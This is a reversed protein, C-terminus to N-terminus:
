EPALVYELNGLVIDQTLRSDRLWGAIPRPLRRVTGILHLQEHVIRFGADAVQRRLTRLRVKELLDDHKDLGKQADKIFSNEHAPERLVGPFHRALWHFTNFAITRGFLLHLPIPILLHPLHAGPPSLYPATSLFFRGDPKIVRRCERLYLGADAVHEIVSHSLVLDFHRAPFPLALGSAQLFRVNALGKERALNVGAMSFRDWPDIGVVFDAHEALSLPMGGGGCGVDIVRGGIQVGSRELFTILKASRYYEFLAYDRESRFRRTAHDKILDNHIDRM